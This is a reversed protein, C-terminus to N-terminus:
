LRVEHDATHTKAHHTPAPAVPQFVGPQAQGSLLAGLSYAPQAPQPNMPILSADARHVPHSHGEYAGYSSPDYQDPGEGAEGGATTTSAVPAPLMVVSPSFPAMEVGEEGGPTAGEATVAAPQVSPEGAAYETNAGEGSVIVVDEDESDKDVPKLCIEWYCLAIFCGLILGIILLGIDPGDFKGGLKSGDDQNAASSGSSPTPSPTPATPGPTPSESM